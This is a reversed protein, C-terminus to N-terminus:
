NAGDVYIHTPYNGEVHPFSRVRKSTAPKTEGLLSSSSTGGEKGLSQLATSQDSEDPTDHDDDSGYSGILDM